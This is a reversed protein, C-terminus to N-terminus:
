AAREKPPSIDEYLREVLGVVDQLDDVGDWRDKVREELVRRLALDLRAPYVTMATYWEGPNSSDPGRQAWKRVAWGRGDPEIEYNGIRM